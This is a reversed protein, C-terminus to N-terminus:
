ENPGTENDSDDPSDIASSDQGEETVSLSADIADSDQGEETVSLSADIADSDQSEETDSLTSDDPSADETYIDPSSNTNSLNSLKLLNNNSPAYNLIQQSLEAIRQDITDEFGGNGFIV